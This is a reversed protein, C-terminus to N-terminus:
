EVLVLGFYHQPDQYTRVVNITFGHQRATAFVDIGCAEMAPRADDPHRCGNAFSCSRCLSCPGAGLGLSKYYGSLFIEREMQAAIKKAHGSASEFLFARKYGNLMKRTDEPRPTHPPCMLSSAYGGCGFQCKWRVWAATFVESPSIIKVEKAGLAYFRPLFERLAKDTNKPNKAIKKLEM